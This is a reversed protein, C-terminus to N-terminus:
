LQYFLRNRVKSSAECQQLALEQSLKPKLGNVADCALDPIASICWARCVACGLWFWSLSNLLSNM